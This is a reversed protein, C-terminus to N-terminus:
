TNQWGGTIKRRSGLHLMPSVCGIGAQNVSNVNEATIRDGIEYGRVNKGMKVIFGLFEHGPIFPPRVWSPEEENGWFREAGHMCKLDGACIGCAETKILIDDDGCEPVPFDNVLRYDDKSYAVLAKMTKPIEM